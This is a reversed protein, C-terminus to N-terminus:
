YKHPVDKLAVELDNICKKTKELRNFVTMIIAVSMEQLEKRNLMNKQGINTM